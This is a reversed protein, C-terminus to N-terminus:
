LNCLIILHYIYMRMYERPNIVSGFIHIIRQLHCTHCCVASHVLDYRGRMAIDRSHIPIIEPFFINVSIFTHDSRDSFLLDRYLDQRSHFYKRCFVKRLQDHIMLDHRKVLAPVYQHFKCKIFIRFKRIRNQLSNFFDSCSRHDGMRFPIFKYLIIRLDRVAPESFSIHNLRILSAEESSESSSRLTRGVTKQPM